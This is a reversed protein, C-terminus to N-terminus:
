RPILSLQAIAEKTRTHFLLLFSNGSQVSIEPVATSSSGESEHRQRRLTAYYGDRISSFM